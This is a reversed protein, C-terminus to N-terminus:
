SAITSYKYTSHGQYQQDIMNQIKNAITNGSTYSANNLAVSGTTLKAFFAEDANNTLLGVENYIIMALQDVAKSECIGESLQAAFVRNTCILVIFIFIFLFKKLKM